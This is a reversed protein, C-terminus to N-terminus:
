PAKPPSPACERRLAASGMRDPAPVGHAQEYVPLGREVADARRDLRSAGADPDAHREELAVDQHGVSPPRDEVQELTRCRAAEIQPHDKARVRYPSWGGRHSDNGPLSSSHTQSLAVQEKWPSVASM